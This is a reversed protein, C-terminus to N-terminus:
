KRNDGKYIKKFGDLWEQYPIAMKGSHMEKNIQHAVKPNKPTKGNKTREIGPTKKKRRKKKM